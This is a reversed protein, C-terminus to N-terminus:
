ASNTTARCRSYRALPSLGLLRGPPRDGRGPSGHHEGAAGDDDRDEAQRDGPTGNMVTPPSATETTTRIM